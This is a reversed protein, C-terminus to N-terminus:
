PNPVDAPDATKSIAVTDGNRVPLPDTFRGQAFATSFGAGYSAPTGDGVVTVPPPPPPTVVVPPPTTDSSGGGGCAALLLAAVGAAGLKFTSSYIKTM